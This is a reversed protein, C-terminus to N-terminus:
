YDPAPHRPSRRHEVLEHQWSARLEDFAKWDVHVGEIWTARPREYVGSALSIACSMGFVILTIRDAGALPTLSAFSLAFAVLCSFGTIAPALRLVRVALPHGERNHTDRRKLSISFSPRHM